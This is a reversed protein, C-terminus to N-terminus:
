MTTRQSDVDSRHSNLPSHSMVEYRVDSVIKDYRELLEKSKQPDHNFEKTWKELGDTLAYFLKHLNFYKATQGSSITESQHNPTPQRMASM